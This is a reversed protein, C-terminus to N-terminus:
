GPIEFYALDTNADVDTKTASLEFTGDLKRWIRLHAYTNETNGDDDVKGFRMSLFFNTGAVVQTMQGLIEIDEKEESYSLDSKVQNAVGAWAAKARMSLFFNTGAVVQTM